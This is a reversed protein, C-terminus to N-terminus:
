CAIHFNLLAKNKIKPVKWLVNLFCNLSRILDRRVLLTYCEKKPKKKKKRANRIKM